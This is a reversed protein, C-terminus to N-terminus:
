QVDATERGLQSEAKPLNMSLASEKKQKTPKRAMANFDLVDPKLSQAANIPNDPTDQPTPDNAPADATDTSGLMTETQKDTDLAINSMSKAKVRVKGINEYVQTAEKKVMLIADECKKKEEVSMAEYHAGEFMFPNILKSFSHCANLFLEANYNVVLKEVNEAVDKHEQPSEENTLGDFSSAKTNKSDIVIHPQEKETENVSCRYCKTDKNSRFYQLIKIEGCKECKKSGYPVGTRAEYEEDRKQRAKYNEASKREKVGREYWYTLKSALEHKEYNAYYNVDEEDEYNFDKNLSNNYAELVEEQEEIPLISFAVATADNILKEDLLIQLTPDLSSLLEMQIQWRDLTDVSKNFYIKSIENRSLQDVANQQEGNKQTYQNIGKPNAKGERIGNLRKLEKWCLAAKNKNLNGIGRQLLNTEILQKLMQDEISLGEINEFNILQCKIESIGLEKCARIRQHGSLIVYDVTITIPEYVGSTKVSELFQEWKEGTIDDFLESNRPHPKLLDTSLLKIPEAM